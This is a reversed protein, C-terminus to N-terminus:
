DMQSLHAHEDAEKMSNFVKFERTGGSRRAEQAAWQGGNPGAGQWIHYPRSEGTTHHRYGYFQEGSAFGPKRGSGPGGANVGGPGLSTSSADVEGIDGNNFGANFTEDGSLATAAQMGDMFTRVTFAM